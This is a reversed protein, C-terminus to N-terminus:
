RAPRSGITVAVSKKVASSNRDKSRKTTIKSDNRGLPNRSTSRGRVYALLRKAVSLLVKDQEFLTLGVLAREPANASQFCALTLVEPGSRPDPFRFETEEFLCPRVIIPIVMRGGDQAGKLLAPLESNRIYKSALFSSSILLVAADCNNAQQQVKAHWNDGVEIDRDSWVCFQKANVPELHELFRNLWCEKPDPSENDRHAYSVFIKAHASDNNTALHRNLAIRLSARLQIKRVPKVLFGHANSAACQRLVEGDFYQTIFVFPIRLENWIYEAAQIGNTSGKLQIDMLIISPRLQRASAIARQASNVRGVVRYEGLDEVMGQLKLAFLSDDEVILISHLNPM